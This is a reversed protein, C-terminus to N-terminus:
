FSPLAFMTSEQSSRMDPNVALLLLLSANGIRLGNFHSLGAEALHLFIQFCPNPATLTATPTCKKGCLLPFVDSFATMMRCTVHQCM